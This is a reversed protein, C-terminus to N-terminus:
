KKKLAEIGPLTGEALFDLMAGGGTSIFTFKNELGLESIAALTDGGGIYSKADSEAIIKALALTETTYGSEYYGLPGNWLITKALKSYEALKALTEPGADFIKEDKEIESIKKAVDGRSSNVVVDIPLVIKSNNLIHSIDLATESVRSAGIEIGRAKYLDNSLAGGIFLTDAIPLFKEVLPLKTDFKAGGLIFLFPKDPNFLESLNEVEEQFQFGMFSPLFKPIGVVSAHKRHSVSFADNVYVEGLAALKKSFDEDNKKEGDYLRLNEFLILEGEKLQAIAESGNELCDECFTIPYINKLYEFVPKLTSEESEIHSIIIVKANKERLFDITKRSKQIRYDDVVKGDKVPVNFDLRVLVKKEACDGIDNLTKYEANPM